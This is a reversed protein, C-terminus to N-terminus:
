RNKAFRIRGHAHVIHGLEDGGLVVPGVADHPEEVDVVDAALHAKRRESIKAARDLRPRGHLARWWCEHHQGYIAAESGLRKHQVRPQAHGEGSGAVAGHICICDEHMGHICEERALLIRADESDDGGVVQQTLAAAM